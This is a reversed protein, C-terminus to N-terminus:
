DTEPQLEGLRKEVAKAVGLRDASGQEASLISQLDSPSNISELAKTIEPVSRSLLDSWAGDDSAESVDTDSQDVGIKTEAIQEVRPGYKTLITDRQNDTLFITDGARYTRSHGNEQRTYVGYLLRYPKTDDINDAM